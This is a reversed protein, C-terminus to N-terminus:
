RPPRRFNYRLMVRMSIAHGDRMAPFFHMQKITGVVSQDLDYGAWRAIEVRAVEGRADIDVLVDVIAEVELAAANAPYPPKLRRYPRPARVDKSDGTDDSIVEMAEAPAAVAAIREAREADITRHIMIVFRHKTAESNLNALLDSESEQASAGRSAPREWAALRGTRASVLFIAAYSEFYAPGESPSRRVTQADGIFFFDCGIAAGLNRAEAVSMNLSGEYGVGRAASRVQDYDVVVFTLDDNSQRTAFSRALEQEVRHSISFQGVGVFALRVARQYAATQSQASAGILLIACAIIQFQRKHM